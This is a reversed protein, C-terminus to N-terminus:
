IITPPLTTGIDSVIGLGNAAYVGLGYGVWMVVFNVMQFAAHVMWKGLIPMLLSAIPWLLVFLIAMIVGHVAIITPLSAKSAAAGSSSASTSTVAAAGAFPNADSTITAKTLDFTFQSTTDHQTIAAAPNTSDLAAGSKWAAIWNTSAGALDMTGGTWSACNACKINATMLGTSTDVGSGQLLTLTTTTDEKPQTHGTGTRPSITVNGTGDAYMVFINSGAMQTGQGLATWTYSTPAQLQFYIDGTGSSASAEPVAVSYCIKGSVCNQLVGASALTSSALVATTSNAATRFEIDWFLSTLTGLATNATRSHM